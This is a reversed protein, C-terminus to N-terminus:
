NGNARLGIAILMLRRLTIARIWSLSDPIRADLEIALKALVMDEAQFSCTLCADQRGTIERALTSRVVDLNAKVQTQIEATSM